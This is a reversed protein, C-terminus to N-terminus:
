KAKLRFAMYSGHYGKETKRSVAIVVYQRGGAEYTAPTAFGSGPLPQEWLVSGTRTVIAGGETRTGTPPIGRKTLEPYEGLVRQWVIEGKNLDIASLTGWPPKIAPYGEPDNFRTYGQNTYRLAYPHVDAKATVNGPKVAPASAPKLNMVFSVVAIQQPDTLQTMAPMMGKGNQVIRRAEVFSYKRDVRRLDPVYHGGERNEGHCSACHNKYLAAGDLPNDTLAKDLDILKLLWPMDNANVFLLGSRPDVAAGGWGAGGNFFPMVIVGAPSPPSFPTTAYKKFEAKVYAHATPSITTIDEERFVQRAFPAPKVPIPQTPWAREDALPSPPVPTERIEFLPQGTERDFLFVYGTKTAQAVAAIRRPRGDPGDHTVTVLNPPCPLDRDWLDHHILQQHWKRTGTRADLAVLCNGFLNQGPRNAGYFDYTPSALPVYVIGREPDLSLGPWSNVGGLTRYAEPPWTDYGFEGPHPITHFVWEVKGTRVNFARIDGPAAPLYESVFSGTILRDGYVVGPSTAAVIKEPGVDIGASFPVRGGEGFSDIPRGTTADIAYLWRSHVFFLRRDTGDEWYALGRAPGQSGTPDLERPKFLWRQRGTRADLAVVDKADTTGYLVGDIVLPNCKVKDGAATPEMDYTWAPELQGVNAPTIQDLPSFHNNDLGGNYYRWETGPTPLPTEGAGLLLVTLVVGALTRLRNM